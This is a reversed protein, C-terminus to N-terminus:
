GDSAFGGPLITRSIHALSLDIDLPIADTLAAWRLDAGDLKAGTLNTRLLLAGRLDAGTLDANSLNADCLDTGQLKAKSM